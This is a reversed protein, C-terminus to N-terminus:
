TIPILVVNKEGSSVLHLMVVVIAWQDSEPSLRSNEFVLAREETHPTVVNEVFGM